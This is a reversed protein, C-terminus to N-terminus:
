GKPWAISAAVCGTGTLTDTAGKQVNITSDHNVGISAYQVGNAYSFIINASQNTQNCVSIITGQAVNNATAISVANALPRIINTM